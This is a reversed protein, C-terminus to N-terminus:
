EASSIPLLYVYFMQKEIAQVIEKRFISDYTTSGASRLLPHRSDSLSGCWLKPEEDSFPSVIAVHGHGNPDQLEEALLGAVVFKGSQALNGAEHPSPVSRWTARQKRIEKVINDALPERQDSPLRIPLIVKLEQAVAMLFKHCDKRNSPFVKGCADWIKLAGPNLKARPDNAM